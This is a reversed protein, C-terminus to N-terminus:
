SLVLTGLINSDGMDQEKFERTIEGTTLKESQDTDMPAGEDDDGFKKGSPRSLTVGMVVNNLVQFDEISDGKEHTFPLNSNVGIKREIRSQSTTLPSIVTPGTKFSDLVLSNNHSTAANEM